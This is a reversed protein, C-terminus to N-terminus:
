GVKILHFNKNQSIATRQSHTDIRRQFIEVSFVNIIQVNSQDPSPRSKSRSTNENEGSNDYSGLNQGILVRMQNM